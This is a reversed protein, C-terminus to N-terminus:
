NIMLRSTMSPSSTSVDYAIDDDDRLGTPRHTCIIERRDKSLWTDEDEYKKEGM